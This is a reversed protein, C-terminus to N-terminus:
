MLFKALSLTEPADVVDDADKIGSELSLTEGGADGVAAERCGGAAFIGDGFLRGVRIEGRAGAWIEDGGGGGGLGGDL